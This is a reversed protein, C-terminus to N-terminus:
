IRPSFTRCRGPTPARRICVSPLITCSASRWGRGSRPPRPRPWSSTWSGSCGGTSISKPRTRSASDSSPRRSRIVCNRRGSRALGRRAARVARVLHRLGDVRAGGPEPLGPLVAGPRGVPARRAGTTLAKRKAAWAIDRDIRDLKDLEKHVTARLSTVTRRAADDLDAFEVSGSWGCTCRTRSAGPPRCTRSETGAPVGARRRAAPQGPRVRRGTRCRGLGGSGGPRRHRRRGMVPGLSRQVAPHRDGVGPPRGDSGPFGGLGAHRDARVVCRCRADVGAAHPVGAAPRRATSLHGPRGATRRIRAATDLERAPLPEVPCRRDGARDVGLGSRRASCPCGGQAGLGGPDGPVAAAAAAM